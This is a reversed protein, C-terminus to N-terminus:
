NCQQHKQFTKKLSQKIRHLRTSVNSVSLELMQAIEKNPYGELYLIVVAKDLDRLKQILQRLLQADDDANFYAHALSDEISSLESSKPRRQAKRKQSLITNLSVRYVWTSFAADGRFSPYSRWLQLIVEQVADQRDEAETFYLSCLSQIIPQHQDIIGIFQAKDQDAMILNTALYKLIDCRQFSKVFFHPNVRM